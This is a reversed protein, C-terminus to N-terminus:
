LKISLQTQYLLCMQFLSAQRGVAPKQRKIAEEPEPLDTPANREDRNAQVQLKRHDHQAACLMPHKPTGARGFSDGSDFQRKSIRSYARYLLVQIALNIFQMLVTRPFPVQKRIFHCASRQLAESEISHM